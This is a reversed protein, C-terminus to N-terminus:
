SKSSVKARKPDRIVSDPEDLQRLHQELDILGTYQNNAWHARYAPRAAQAEDLLQRLVPAYAGDQDLLMLPRAAAVKVSVVDRDLAYEQKDFTCCRPWGPKEPESRGLQLRQEDFCTACLDWDKERMAYRVGRIPCAGCGDCVVGSHAERDSISADKAVLLSLATCIETRAAQKWKLSEASTCLSAVLRHIMCSLSCDMLDGINHALLEYTTTASM